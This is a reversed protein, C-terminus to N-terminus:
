RDNALAVGGRARVRQTARTVLPRTLIGKHYDSFLVADAAAAADAVREVLLDAIEAAIPSRDEHDVRVVQQSHAVIRTKRTTPRGPAVLLAATDAGLRALDERLFAGTPDDGVIGAICAAGGLAVVNAAVNSAGGAAHTTREQEVVMVPAEPSIRRVRGWIYEDLMCDGVVIIRRREFQELIEELRSRRM